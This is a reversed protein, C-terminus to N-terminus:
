EDARVVLNVGLLIIVAGILMNLTIKENFLLLGWLMTLIMVLSRNAYATTLPFRKLIHQWLVAYIALFLLGCGYFLCFQWSLFEYGAAMKNMISCLSYIFIGLYLLLNKKMIKSVKMM